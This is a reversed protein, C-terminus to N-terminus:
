GGYLGPDALAPTGEPVPRCGGCTCIDPHGCPEPHLIHLLEIAPVKFPYGPRDELAAEPVPYPNGPHWTAAKPHIPQTPPYPLRV